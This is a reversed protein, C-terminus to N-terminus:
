KEDERLAEAVQCESIYADLAKRLDILETLKVYTALAGRIQFTHTDTNTRIPGISGFAFEVSPQEVVEKTTVKRPSLKM